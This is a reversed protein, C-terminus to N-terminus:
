KGDWDGVVPIYASSGWKVIKDTTGDRGNDTRWTGDSPKFLGFGDTQPKLGFHVFRSFGLSSPTGTRTGFNGDERKNYESVTITGNENVSEVFAVHGYDGTTSVAAAGYKPRFSVTRVEIPNETAKTAWEGGNGLGSTLGGSVGLDRLKWAVYDTCNRYYYGRSSMREDNGSGIDARGDRDEDVWYDYTACNYPKANWNPYGGNPKAGAGCAASVTGQEVGVFGIALVAVAGALVMRRM